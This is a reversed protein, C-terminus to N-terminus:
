RAVQEAGLLTTALGIGCLIIQSLMTWRDRYFAGSVVLHGNASAVYLWTSTVLGGAFGLAAVGASFARRARAPVLVAGLLAVFSAGLLALITSIAFWDVHPPHIM